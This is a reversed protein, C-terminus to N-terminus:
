WVVINIFSPIVEVIGHNISANIINSVSRSHRTSSQSLLQSPLAIHKKMSPKVTLRLCYEFRWFLYASQLGNATYIFQKSLM